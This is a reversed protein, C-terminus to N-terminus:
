QAVEAPKQKSSTSAAMESKIKKVLPRIENEIANFSLPGIYKHRIVGLHDLLFTEPAGYVGFNIAASGEIDSLVLDYPNGFQALWRNADEPEDKWNFGIVDIENTNAYGSVVEHEQQCGVCWSGWVNILYPKGLFDERTLFVDPQDLRPLRFNPAPKNVLPSPVVKTDKGLGSYLLVGLLAFAFLPAIFKWM